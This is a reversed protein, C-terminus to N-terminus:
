QSDKVYRTFTPQNLFEKVVGRLEAVAVHWVTLYKRRNLKLAPATSSLKLYVTHYYRARRTNIEHDGRLWTVFSKVPGATHYPMPKVLIM